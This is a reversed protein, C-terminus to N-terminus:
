RSRLNTTFRSRTRTRRRELPQESMTPVSVRTTWSPPSEDAAESAPAHLQTSVAVVHRFVQELVFVAHSSAHLFGGSTGLQLVPQSEACCSQLSAQVDVQVDHTVVFPQLLM